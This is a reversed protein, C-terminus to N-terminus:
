AGSRGAVGGSSQDLAPFRDALLWREWWRVRRLNPDSAAVLHEKGTRTSLLLTGEDPRSKVVWYKDVVYSYTEGLKAAVVDKARPGPATSSKSKRYVVWDGPRLKNM